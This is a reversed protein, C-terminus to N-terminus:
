GGHRLGETPHMQSARYAPYIGGILGVCLAVLFGEVMVQPAIEGSVMRGSAPMSALFRTMVVAIFTGAVAGVVGLMLSEFLILRLVRTKRWGIARLVAIERTREFVTTMMTNLMGITGIVLAITSTLWAVGRAMRIENSSDVYDTPPLAELKGPDLAKIEDCLAQVEEKDSSNAVVTYASVEGKRDLLTQMEELNMVISGNEFVNKSDFIGVVNFPVGQVVEIEDGVKKQMNEALVRGIMVQRQEGPTLSKGDAITLGDLLFSDYPRGQVVVGFLDYDSFSVVDVMGPSMDKVNPLQKIKAGLSEDLKSAMRQISGARVVVIDINRAQYIELLSAQFGRSIGVLAVVATVAVAVGSITLLSRAPRRAINKWILKNFRM